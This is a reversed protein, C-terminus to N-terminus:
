IANLTKSTLVYLPLSVNTYYPYKKLIILQINAYYKLNFIIAIDMEFYFIKCNLSLLNSIAVRNGFLLLEHKISTKIHFLFYWNFRLYLLIENSPLYQYYIICNIYFYLRRRFNIIFKISSFM